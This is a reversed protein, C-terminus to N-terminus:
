DVMTELEDSTIDTNDVIRKSVFPGQIIHMAMEINITPRLEGRSIARQLAIVTPGRPQVRLQRFLEAHDPNAMGRAMMWVFLERVLLSRAQEVYRRQIEILDDRLSGTDSPASAEVGQAVAAFILEALGGYHRYITTKAVGSRSAVEEITCADVGHEIIIEKTSDLM